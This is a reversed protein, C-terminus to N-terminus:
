GPPTGTHYEDPYEEEDERTCMSWSKKSPEPPTWDDMSWRQWFSPIRPTPPDYGGCLLMDTAMRALDHRRCKDEAEREKLEEASLPGRGALRRFGDELEHNGMWTSALRRQQEEVAKKIVWEQAIVKCRARSIM